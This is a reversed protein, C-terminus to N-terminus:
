LYRWLWCLEFSSFEWGKAVAVFFGFTEQGLGVGGDREATAFSAGEVEFALFTTPPNFSLVVCTLLILPLLFM